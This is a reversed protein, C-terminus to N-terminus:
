KPLVVNRIEAPSSERFPGASTVRYHRKTSPSEKDIFSPIQTEGILRFGEKKDTERYVKYGRVWTEPSEKWVLYVNEKTPVARLDRPPSPVLASPDVKLEQSPPGERIIDTQTISRVTYYVTKVADFADRFLTDKLPQENLPVVPYKGSVESKYVAYAIGEGASQWSLVVSDTDVVFSVGTPPHPPSVNNLTLLADKSVSGRLNETIVRYTIRGGKVDRDAFSRENKELSAVKEFDGDKSRMVHFRKISKEDAEPFDWSLMISSEKQIARLNSPPSPKEYAKLTPDGKKGCATLLGLVLFLCFVFLLLGSRGNIM